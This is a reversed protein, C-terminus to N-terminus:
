PGCVTITAPAASPDTVDSAQATWSSIQILSNRTITKTASGAANLRTIGDDTVSTDYTNKLDVDHNPTGTINFTARYVFYTLQGRGVPVTLTTTGCSSSVVSLGIDQSSSPTGSGVPAGSTATSGVLDHVRYILTNSDTGHGSVDTWTARITFTDTTAGAWTISVSYRGAEGLRCSGSRVRNTANICFSGSRYIYSTSSSANSALARLAEAQGQIVETAQSNEQSQRAALLSRNATAYAIGLALGLVALVVMVEIITDGAANRLRGLM